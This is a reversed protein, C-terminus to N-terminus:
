HSQIALYDVTSHEANMVFPILISVVTLLIAGISTFAKLKMWRFQDNMAITVVNIAILLQLILSATVLVTSVVFHETERFSILLRLQNSTAALFSVNLTIEVVSRYLDYDSYSFRLQYQSESSGASYYLPDSPPTLQVTSEVKEPIGKQPVTTSVTTSDAM